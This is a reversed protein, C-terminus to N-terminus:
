QGRGQRPPGEHPVGVRRYTHEAVLEADPGGVYDVYDKKLIYGCTPQPVVIDDGRRVADALVGSTAAARAVFGDVDGQHLLPAGCCVEGEPLSCEIGNREYVRVLDQGVDTDQYEVLCTPFLAVPGPHRGVARRPGPRKQFWTSFRQRAFPPLVREAAIGVVKEMLKRPLSGPADVATNAVPAM